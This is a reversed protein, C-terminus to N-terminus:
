QWLKFLETSNSASRHISIIMAHPSAPAISQVSDSPGLFTIRALGETGYSTDIRGVDLVSGIYAADNRKGLALTGDSTSVSGVFYSFPAAPFRVSSTEFSPLLRWNADFRTVSAHTGEVDDFTGVGVFTGDQLQRLPFNTTAIIMRGAIGFADDLTLDNKFRLLASQTGSGTSTYIPIVVKGDRQVVLTAGVHVVDPYPQLQSSAGEVGAPLFRTLLTGTDTGNWVLVEDAPTVAAAYVRWPRIGSVCGSSGYTSDVLGDPYFRCVVFADTIAPTGPDDTATVLVLKKDSQEGLYRYGLALQGGPFSPKMTGRSGFSEDIMGQPTLRMLTLAGNVRGVLMTGESLPYLEATPISISLKGGEGYSQDLSGRVGAVYLKARAETAINRAIARVSLETTGRLTSGEARLMVTGTTQGGPIPAVQATVGAPLNSIELAVEEDARGGGRVLSVTLEATGGENLFLEMSQPVVELGGLPTYTSSEICAATMLVVSCLGLQRVQRYGM